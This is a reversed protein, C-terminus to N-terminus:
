LIDVHASECIGSYARSYGLGLQLIAFGSTLLWQQGRARVGVGRLRPMSSHFLECLRLRLSSPTALFENKPSLKRTTKRQLGVSFGREKLDVHIEKTVSQHSQSWTSNPQCSVELM